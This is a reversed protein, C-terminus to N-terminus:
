IKTYIKVASQLCRNITTFNDTQLTMYLALFDEYAVDGHETVYAEYLAEVTVDEGDDGKDGKEGKDGVAGTEGKEGQLGQAGQPGQAGTEGKEGQLGQVGQAGQPGQPGVEGQPGPTNCGVMAILICCVLLLIAVTKTFKM